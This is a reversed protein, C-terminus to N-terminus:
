ACIIGYEKSKIAEGGIFLEMRPSAGGGMSMVNKMM